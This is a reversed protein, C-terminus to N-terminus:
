TGASVYIVHFPHNGTFYENVIYRETGSVIIDMKGDDYTRVVESVKAGCGVQFMKGDEVLVLNIGFEGRAAVVEGILQKYRGEFIHLPYSSGPFLVINLPFIGITAM